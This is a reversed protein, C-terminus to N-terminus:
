TAHRGRMSGAILYIPPLWLLVAVSLLWVSSLAFMPAQVLYLPWNLFLEAVKAGLFGRCEVGYVMSDYFNCGSGTRVGFQTTFGVVVDSVIALIILGVYLWCLGRVVRIM